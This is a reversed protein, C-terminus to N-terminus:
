MLRKLHLLPRSLHAHQMQVAADGRNFEFVADVVLRLGYSGCQGIKAEVESRYKSKALAEVRGQGKKM